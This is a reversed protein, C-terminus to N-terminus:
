RRTPVRRSCWCRVRAMASGRWGFGVRCRRVGRAGFVHSPLQVRAGAALQWHLYFLPSHTHVGSNVGFAEGALVRM